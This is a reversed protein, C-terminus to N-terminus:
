DPFTEPGKNRHAAIFDVIRKENYRDFEDIWTWATLAIRTKLRADPVLIVKSPFKGVITTLQAVLDPCPTQCNYHIIVGGHELNHVLYEDPIPRDHVGWEATYPYHWGSTAPVSNYPPHSLNPDVHDQGLNILQRPGSGADQGPAIQSVAVLMVALVVIAAAYMFVTSRLFPTAPGSGTASAGAGGPGNDATAPTPENVRAM